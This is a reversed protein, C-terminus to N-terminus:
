ETDPVTLAAKFDIAAPAEQGGTFDIAGSEADNGVFKTFDIPV